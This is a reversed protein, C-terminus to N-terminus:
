RPVGDLCNISQCSEDTIIPMTDFYERLRLYEGLLTRVGLHHSSCGRRLRCRRRRHDLLGPILGGEPWVGLLLLLRLLLLLLRHASLVKHLLM